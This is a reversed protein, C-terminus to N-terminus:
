DIGNNMAVRAYWYGSKKIIRRQTPYEVYVIGFRKRFGEAWEFNDILSWVFYGRLDVGDEIARHAQALHKYLYEIRKEDEVKGDRLVDRYAAGNETILIPIRYKGYVRALLDYLGEPYVEWGMETKEKGTSVTGVELPWDSEDYRTYSPSYYNIGLFDVPASIIELDGPNVQPMEVRESFWRWLAEPYVGAFLPETFWGNCYQDNREAAQLDAPTDGAPYVPVMNLTIGIQGTYGMERYARVAKGHSLLIHHAARLAAAFDTLGPAHVGRWHGLFSAVWPENHTIWIPVVDGLEAFVYRAYAEFQDVTDRSAWGGRDQLWQPLDWHYLTVAPQIGEERLRGILNRYFAMGAENPRGTDDPFVRPWSISLRYANLHLAKMCVIDDEYRHYHDCATDGTDGGAIKGPTHSFTDWVSPSKGDEAPAGEIQYAATAAGWLFDKPFTLRPM